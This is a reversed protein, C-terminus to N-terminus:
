RIRPSDQTASTIHRFASTLSPGPCKMRRISHSASLNKSRCGGQQKLRPSTSLYTLHSHSSHAYSSYIRNISFSKIRMDTHVSASVHLLFFFCSPVRLLLLNSYSWQNYKVIVQFCRCGPFLKRDSFHLEQLVDFYCKMKLLM